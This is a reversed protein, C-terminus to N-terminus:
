PSFGFHRRAEAPVEILASLRRFYARSHDAPKLWLTKADFLAQDDGAGQYNRYGGIVSFDVNIASLRMLGLCARSFEHPEIDPFLERLRKMFRSANTAFDRRGVLGLRVQSRAARNLACDLIEYEIREARSMMSPSCKAKEPDHGWPNRRREVKGDSRNKNPALKQLRRKEQPSCSGTNRPIRVIAFTDSPNSRACNNTPRLHRPYHNTTRTPERLTVSCVFTRM